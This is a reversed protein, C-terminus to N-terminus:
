RGYSVRENKECESLSHPVWRQTFKRLRLERALLDKVTSMNINFHSAINMASAFMYKFLFKPLSDGLITLLRGARNRNECSTDGERFRRLWRKVTPLPLAFNELTGRLHAHIVKSEQEQLWLRRIVFHQEREDM